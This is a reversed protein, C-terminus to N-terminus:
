SSGRLDNLTFDSQERTKDDAELKALAATYQANDLSVKVHEYRELQALEVYESAPQEASGKAPHDRLADALTSAVEQLTDAGFDGETALNGLGAALQLRMRPDSVHRIDLAIQLTAKGREDDTLGRLKGLKSAIAMPDAQQRAASLPAAVAALIVAAALAAAPVARHVNMSSKRYIRHHRTLRPKYRKSLGREDDRQSRSQPAARLCGRPGANEGPQRSYAAGLFCIGVSHRALEM